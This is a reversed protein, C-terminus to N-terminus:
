RPLSEIWQVVEKVKPDRSVFTKGKARRFRKLNYLQAPSPKDKKTRKAEISFFYGHACGIVDPTGKQQFSGGHTRLCYVGDISNLTEVMSRVVDSEYAM